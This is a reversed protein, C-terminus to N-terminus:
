AELSNLLSKGVWLEIGDIEDPCSRNLGVM